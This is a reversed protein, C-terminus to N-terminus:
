PTFYVIIATIDDVHGYKGDVWRKNSKIVLQKAAEAPKLGQELSEKVSTGVEDDTLVEWIGDSAIVLFLDDPSVLRSSIEPIANVGIQAAIADGM